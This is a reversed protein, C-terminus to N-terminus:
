EKKKLRLRIRPDELQSINFKRGIRGIQALDIDGVINVFFAEHKPEVVMLLLGAIRDDIIKVSIYSSSTRERVRVVQEWDRTRDFWEAADAVRANIREADQASFPYSQLHILTLKTLLAAFEPDDDRTSESIMRLLPAKLFIEMSSDASRPIGFLSFDVYGPDEQARVTGSVFLMMFLAFCFRM